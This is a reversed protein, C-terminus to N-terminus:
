ILKKYDVGDIDKYIDLINNDNLQENIDNVYINKIEVLKGNFRTYM